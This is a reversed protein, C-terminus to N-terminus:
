YTTGVAEGGGILIVENDLLDRLFSSENDAQALDIQKDMSTSEFIRIPPNTTSLWHNASFTTENHCR